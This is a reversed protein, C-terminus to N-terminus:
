LRGYAALTETTTREKARIFQGFCSTEGGQDNCYETYSQRNYVMGVDKAFIKYRENTFILNREDAETVTITNDYGAHPKQFATVSLMVPDETLNNYRNANWSTGERAGNILVVYPVNDESVIIEGNRATRLSWTQTYTWADEANGREHVFIKYVTEGEANIMSDTISLKKQYIRTVDQILTDYTVTRVDYIWYNGNRMPYYASGRNTVPTEDPNCAYVLLLFLAAFFTQFHKKFFINTM